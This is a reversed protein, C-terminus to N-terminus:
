PTPSHLWPGVRQVHLAQATKKPWSKIELGKTFPFCICILTAAETQLTQRQCGGWSNTWYYFQGLLPTVSFSHGKSLDSPLHIVASELTQAGLGTVCNRLFVRLPIVFRLHLASPDVDGGRWWRTDQRPTNGLPQGCAWLPGETRWKSCTMLASTSAWSLWKIWGSSTQWGM